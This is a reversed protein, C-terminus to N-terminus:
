RAAVEPPYYFARHTVLKEPDFRKRAGCSLCTRYSVKNTTFPRSLNNHRCGFLSAIVGIKKGFAYRDSKSGPPRQGALISIMQKVEWAQLERKANAESARVTGNM